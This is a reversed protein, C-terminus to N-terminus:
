MVVNSQNPAQGKDDWGFYLWVHLFSWLSVFHAAWSLSSSIVGVTMPTAPLILNWNIVYFKYITLLKLTLVKANIKSIWVIYYATGGTRSFGSGELLFALNTDLM